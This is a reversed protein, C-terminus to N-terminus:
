PNPRINTRGGAHCQGGAHPRRASKPFSGGGSRLLAQRILDPDGTSSFIRIAIDEASQAIDAQVEAAALAHEAQNRAETAREAEKAARNAMM